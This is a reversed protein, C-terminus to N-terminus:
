MEPDTFFDVAQDGWNIRSFSSSTDPHCDLTILQDHGYDEVSSYEELFKIMSWDCAIFLNNGQRLRQLTDMGGQQAGSHERYRQESGQKGHVEEYWAKIVSVTGLHHDAHLHSIWILKLDRFVEALEPPTFVRKLQGLTNEGCDLLYSGYGPVRVLTASVNRYKSPLASGTGLCIIEANQSPLNEEAAASAISGSDIEERASQALQLADPPTNRLAAATDLDPVVDASNLRFRPGIHVKYGRQAKICGHPLGTDVPPHEPQSVNTSQHVPAPFHLPDVQNLRIAANASSDMTLYNHCSDQSSVIHQYQPHKHIFERFSKNEGVGPGLIWIIAIVGEMVRPIKWEPRNVLNEVYETTPLDVVAVGTGESGEELVMESEIIAGDMSEVSHGSALRNWLPGEQVKLQKAKAPLFKGRQKHNRIIYSTSIPSSKTCPLSDILAGPWPRRVFVKITPLPEEGGPLPGNYRVLNGSDADRTFLAAPLKVDEIPIEELNGARWASAFMETVISKRIEQNTPDDSSTMLDHCAEQVGDKSFEDYDRKMPSKSNPSPSTNHAVSPSVAMAWVQIRPDVWTPKWDHDSSKNDLDETYENVEVPMGKRFVFRRAIALTHTINPGGHITLTPQQQELCLAKKLNANTQSQTDNNGAQIQSGARRNMKANLKEKASLVSQTSADALTLVMGILGGTTKWETKGTLFIDSIKMLKQGRQICARQLGEHMNGILYRKDDFHLMLATGPTDATPTTLFSIHSHMKYARVAPSLGSVRNHRPKLLAEEPTPTSNTSEHRKIAERQDPTCYKLIAKGSQFACSVGFFKASVQDSVEEQSATASHSHLALPIPAASSSGRLKTADKQCSRQGILLAEKSTSSRRWRDLSRSIITFQLPEVKTEPKKEKGVLETSAPGLPATEIRRPLQAHDKTNIVASKNFFPRIEGFSKLFSRGQKYRM